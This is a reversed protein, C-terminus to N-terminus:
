VVKEDIFHELLQLPSLNNCAFCFNPWDADIRSNDFDDKTWKYSKNEMKSLRNIEQLSDRYENGMMVMLIM